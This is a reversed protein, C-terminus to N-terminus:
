GAIGGIEKLFDPLIDRLKQLAVARHSIQNKIDLGVEAMTLNQDPILFIPDYGFGNSGRPENTIIGECTGETTIHKGQPTCIAIVCRFRATRKKMPVGNLAQLLKKINEQDTAQEGAYRASHVGPAGNLADVELGSDDAIAIIGTTKAIGCAKKLANETFTCGDEIIDPLDQVDDMSLLEIPLNQVLAQFEKLKGRNKTALIMRM